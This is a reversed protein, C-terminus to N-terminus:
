KACTTFPRIFNERRSRKSQCLVECSLSLLLPSPAYFLTVRKVRMTLFSHCNCLLKDCIITKKNNLLFSTKEKLPLGSRTINSNASTMVSSYPADELQLQRGWWWRRLFLRALHCVVFLLMTKPLYSFGFCLRRKLDVEGRRGSVRLHFAYRINTVLAVLMSMYIKQQGTYIKVSKVRFIPLKRHIKDYNVRKKPTFKNELFNARTCFIVFILYPSFVRKKKSFCGSISHFM